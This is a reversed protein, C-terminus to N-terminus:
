VGVLLSRSTFPMPQSLSCVSSPERNVLTAVDGMISTLTGNACSGAEPGSVSIAAAKVANACVLEADYRM